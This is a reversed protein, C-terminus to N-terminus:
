YIGGGDSRGQLQVVVVAATLRQSCCLAITIHRKALIVQEVAATGYVCVRSKLLVASRVQVSLCAYLLCHM